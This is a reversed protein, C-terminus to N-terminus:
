ALWLEMTMMILAGTAAILAAAGGAVLLIGLVKWGSVKM